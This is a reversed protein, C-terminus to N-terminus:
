LPIPPITWCDVCHGSVAMFCGQFERYYLSTAM